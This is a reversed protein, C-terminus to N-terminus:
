RRQGRGRVVEGCQRRREARAGVARAGVARAQATAAVRAGMCHATAAVRCPQWEAVRAMRVVDRRVYIVLLGALLGM